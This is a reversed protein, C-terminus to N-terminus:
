PPTPYRASDFIDAPGLTHPLPPYRTARDAMTRAADSDSQVTTATQVCPTRTNASSHSKHRTGLRTPISEPWRADPSAYRIPLAGPKSSETTERHGSVVRTSYLVM